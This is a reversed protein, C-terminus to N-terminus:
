DIFLVEGKTYGYNSTIVLVADDRYAYEYCYQTEIYFKTNDIRYLNTDIRTLTVEYTDLDLETPILITEIEKVDGYEDIGKSGSDLDVAEYIKLVKYSDGSSISNALASNIASFFGILLFGAIILRHKM